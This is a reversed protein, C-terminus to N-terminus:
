ENLCKVAEEQNYFNLYGFCKSRKSNQDIMVKASKIKYGKSSFFKYLDNDFTTNTLNGVYLTCSNDVLVKEKQGGGLMMNGFGQLPNTMPAGQKQQFGMGMMQGMMPNQMMQQAM